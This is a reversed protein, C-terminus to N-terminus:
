VIDMVGASLKRHIVPRVSLLIKVAQGRTM